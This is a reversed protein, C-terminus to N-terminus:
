LTSDYFTLTESPFCNIIHQRVKEKQSWSVYNINSEFCKWDAAFKAARAAIENQSLTIPM